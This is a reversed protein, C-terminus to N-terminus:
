AFFVSSIDCLASYSAHKHLRNTYVVIYMYKMSILLQIFSQSNAEGKSKSLQTETHSSNVFLSYFCSLKIVLNFGESLTYVKVVKSQNSEIM